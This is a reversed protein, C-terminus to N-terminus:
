IKEVIDEVSANKLKKTIKETLLKTEEQSQKQLELFLMDVIGSTNKMEQVLKENKVRKHLAFYKALDKKESPKMRTACDKYLKNSRIFSKWTEKEQMSLVINMKEATRELLDGKRTDEKAFAMNATDVEIVDDDNKLIDNTIHHHMKAMENQIFLHFHHLSPM